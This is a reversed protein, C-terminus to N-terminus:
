IRLPNRLGQFFCLPINESPLAELGTPHSLGRFFTIAMQRAEFKFLLACVGKSDASPQWVKGSCEASKNASPLLARFCNPSKSAQNGPWYYVKSKKFIDIDGCSVPVTTLFVIQTLSSQVISPCYLGRILLFPNILCLIVSTPVQNSATYSLLESARVALEQVVVTVKNISIKWIGCLLNM